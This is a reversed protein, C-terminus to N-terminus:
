RDFLLANSPRSSEGVGLHDLLVVVHGREQLYEAMSYGSRGPVNLHWYRKDYTAGNFLVIVASKAAVHRIPAPMFVWASIFLREGQSIEQPLGETVDILAAIYSM